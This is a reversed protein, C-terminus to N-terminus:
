NEGTEPDGAPCMTRSPSLDVAETDMVLPMRWDPAPGQLLVSLITTSTFEWKM